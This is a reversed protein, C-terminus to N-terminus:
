AVAAEEEDLEDQLPWLDTPRLGFVQAIKFQVAPTPIQGREASRATGESIGALRALARHSLGRDLRKQKLGAAPRQDHGNM